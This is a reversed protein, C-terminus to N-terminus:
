TAPRGAKRQATPPPLTQPRDELTKIINKTRREGNETKRKGNETRREGNEM